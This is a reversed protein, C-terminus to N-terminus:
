AAIPESVLSTAEATVSQTCGATALGMRRCLRCLHRRVVVGTHDLLSFVEVRSRLGGRLRWKAKVLSVLPPALPM